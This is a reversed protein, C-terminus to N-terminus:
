RRRKYCCHYERTLLESDSNAIPWSRIDDCGENGTVHATNASYNAWSLNNGGADVWEWNGVMNEVIQGLEDDQCAYYWEGWDCLKGGLDGCTMIADWFSHPGREQIEICYNESIAIFGLPCPKHLESLVQFNDGDYIMSVILGPILEASDLPETVNKYLPVEGLGNLNITVAETNVDAARFYIVMGAEYNNPPLPIQLTINNPTGATEAFTLAGQQIVKAPVAQHLEVPEALGKVQRDEETEGTMIIPEKVEVQTFVPSFVLLALITLLQKM